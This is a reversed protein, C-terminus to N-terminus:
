ALVPQNMMKQLLQDFSEQGMLLHVLAEEEWTAVHAILDKISWREVVGPEILSADDLGAYADNFADWEHALRSVLQERNM